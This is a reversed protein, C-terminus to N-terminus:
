SVAFAREGERESLASARTSDVMESEGGGEDDDDTSVSVVGDDADGLNNPTARFCTRKSQPRKRSRPRTRPALPRAQVNREAGRRM